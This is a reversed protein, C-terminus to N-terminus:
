ILHSSHLEPPRFCWLPVLPSWQRRKQALWGPGCCVWGAHQGSSPARGPAPWPGRVCLAWWSSWEPLLAFCDSVKPISFTETHEQIGLRGLALRHLRHQATAQHPSVGIADRCHSLHPQQLAFPHVSEEHHAHPVRPSGCVPRSGPTLPSSCWSPIVKVHFYFCNACGVSLQGEAKAISHLSMTCWSQANIKGSLAVHHSQSLSTKTKWELEAIYRLNITIPIDVHTISMDFFFGTIFQSNM